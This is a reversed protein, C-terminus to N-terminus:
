AAHRAFVAMQAALARQFAPRAECRLRYSELVPIQAVINTHRLIRLVSTMLLDAATFRGELYDREGLWAALDQLRKQLIEVAGPRRAKAWEEQAYFLDITALNQVQPEISNMAAFMWATVRARGAPDAPMLAECRQAIHHVIAGSEFLVLEGEQYAPVQGFPQLRRYAESKQDEPGIVHETYAEGAEELAWRVRLDRVLGQAFPPVARFVSLRITTM